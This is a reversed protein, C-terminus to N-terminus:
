KSFQPGPGAVRSKACQWLFHPFVDRYCLSPRIHISKKFIM